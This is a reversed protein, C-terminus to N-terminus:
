SDPLPRPRLGHRAAPGAQQPEVKDAALSEAERQKGEEAQLPAPRQPGAGRM